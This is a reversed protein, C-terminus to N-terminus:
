SLSTSYLLTSYPHLLLDGPTSLKAWIINASIGYAYIKFNTCGEAGIVSIVSVGGLRGITGLFRCHHYALHMYIIRDRAM